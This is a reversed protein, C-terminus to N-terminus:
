SKESDKCSLNRLLHFCNTVKTNYGVDVVTLTGQCVSEEFLGFGEGLALQLVLHEVIHVEFALLADGNFGVSDLHM